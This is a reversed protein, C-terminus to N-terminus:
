KGSKGLKNIKQIWNLRKDEKLFRINGIVTSHIPKFGSFSLISKKMMMLGPAGIIFRYYWAPGGTTIIIRASRGSLLKDWLKSNPRYKFAFGPLFTRDFFGKFIAPASGWWTPFVIVIHDCWKILEQAKHLDPELEQIVRYGHHLLPDFNIKSIELQEVEYGEEKAGKAYAEALAGDFSDSDPNGLLVLIKKKM